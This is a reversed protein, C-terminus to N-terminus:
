GGVADPAHPVLAYNDIGQAQAIVPVFVQQVVDVAARAVVQQDAAGTRIGQEAVVAVVEQAAAIAGVSQGLKTMSCM